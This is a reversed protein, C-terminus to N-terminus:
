ITWKDHSQKACSASSEANPLRKLTYLGQSCRTVPSTFKSPLTLHATSPQIYPVHKTGSMWDLTDEFREFNSKSKARTDKYFDQQTQAWNLHEQQALICKSKERDLLNASWVLKSTNQQCTLFLHTMPKAVVVSPHFQEWSKIFKTYCVVQKGTEDCARKFAQWVSMQTLHRSCVFTITKLDQSEAMFFLLM